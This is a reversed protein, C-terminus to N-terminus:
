TARKDSKAEPSAELFRNAWEPILNVSLYNKRRCLWLWFLNICCVATLAWTLFVYRFYTAFIFLNIFHLSMCLVAILRLNSPVKRKLFAAYFVFGLLIARYWPGIMGKLQLIVDSLNKGSFNLLLIEKGARLYTLPPTSLALNRAGTFLYAESGFYANHVLPFLVPAFAVWSLIVEKRMGRKDAKFSFYLVAILVTICFQPRMFVTIFFLFHALFSYWLYEGNRSNEYRLALTLGGLFATYGLVEPWGGRVVMVYIYYTAGLNNLIQFPLFGLMFFLTLGFSLKKSFLNTLFGFLIYPVLLVITLYGLNTQGFFLKEIARFYRFGPTNWFVDEVGRIASKWNGSLAHLLIMKGFTQHTIGDEAGEHIYYQGFLEPCYSFAITIAISTIFFALAFRKWNIRAALRLIFFIGLIELMFKAILSLKLKSSLILHMSLQTEDPITYKEPFLYRKVKIKLDNLRGWFGLQEKDNIGVGFIKKGIDTNTIKRCDKQKNNIIEFHNQSDEWLVYGTWCLSSNVSAPTLEYMVFYPMSERKIKSAGQNEYAGFWNYDLSNVFSGRFQTLNNFNITDVVRSYKPNSYISDASFAFPSGPCNYSFPSGPPPSKWCINDDFAYREQFQQKMFNFAEPDLGKELEGSYGEHIYFINHGEQLGAHPLIGKLFFIAIPIILIISLHKFSSKIKGNVIALGSMFIIIFSFAGTIPLGVCIVIFIFCAIKKIIEGFNFKM